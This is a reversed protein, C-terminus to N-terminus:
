KKGFDFILQKRLIGDLGEDCTDAVNPQDLTSEACSLGSNSRKYVFEGEDYQNNENDDRFFNGINSSLEDIGQTFNNDGDKDLYAKDGELYALVTVRNDTPKPNQVTLTVQCTGQATACNPTISGGESVFSVVTGDPVPNGVRDTLRVTINATDGDLTGNLSNKSATLSFGNQYARGTAVAVNKSLAYINPNSVITAKIEVPGPLYGPYLNVTVKGTADSKVTRAQRNGQSIFSLDSPGRLLDVSVEQNAAPTNNSYVTFEIQGSTSSGSGRSALSVNGTSSYILSNAAVAAINVTLTQKIALNSATTATLTQSGECLKGTSDIAQYTTTVDGQNSSTVNESTFKGCSATFSVPVDNINAKTTADQAKLTLNTTGGSELNMSSATLNALTINTAQLAFSYGASTATKGNYNATAILQYAGTETNNTPKVAITAEGNTNTLVTANTSGFSVGESAFTVLANSVPQGLADTVKVQATAGAGTLARTPQGNLDILQVASINLASTTTTTGTTDTTTTTTSGSIPAFGLSGSGGGCSALVLAVALAGLKFTTKSNTIM